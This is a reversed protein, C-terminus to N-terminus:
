PRLREGGNGSPREVCQSLGVPHLGMCLQAGYRARAIPARRRRWAYFGRSPIRSPRECWFLTPRRGNRNRLAQDTGHFLATGPLTPAVCAELLRWEDLM